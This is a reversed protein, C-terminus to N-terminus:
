GFTGGRKKKLEKATEEAAAATRRLYTETTNGELAGALVAFANTTGASAIKDSKAAVESNIDPIDPLDPGGVTKPAQAAAAEEAARGLQEALKKRLEEMRAQRQAIDDQGNQTAASSLGMEDRNIQEVRAARQKEIEALAAAREAERAAANGLEGKQRAEAAKAAEEELKANAADVDFTDDWMGKIFNLGKAVFNYVSTWADSMTGVVADWLGGIFATANEFSTLLGAKVNEWLELAGYFAAGAVQVFGTRFRVWVGYIAETGKLWAIQLATWLIEAALAIDGAALANAIGGFVETTWKWLEGFREGLWSLAKNGSDTYYFFAAVGAILAASVLGIPSLIAGLIGAFTTVAAVAGSIAIGIAFMVAGLTVVAAGMAVVGAVVLAATVVLQRNNKVFDIVTKLVRTTAEAYPQLANAIAAGIQFTVAKIQKWLDDLTDGFVTAAAADEKGIIIGLEEARKSLEAMGKSGDKFLPLLASAGRGFIGMAAASRKAPNEIRSIRDAILKFQEDPSLKLVAEASLGLGEIAAKAEKSGGAAEVLSRQMFRIGTVVDGLTADSQEAAYKLASLSEVAMGTRDSAKSLEDGMSAFAVSTGLVAALAGGSAATIQTGVKMVQGGLAHLKKGARDLAKVYKEDAGIEIFARGARIGKAAM